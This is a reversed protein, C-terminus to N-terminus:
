VDNPWFKYARRNLRICRNALEYVCRKILMFRKKKKGIKLSYPSETLKLLQLLTHIRLCLKVINPKNHEIKRRSLVISLGIIERKTKM